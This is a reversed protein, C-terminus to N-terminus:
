RLPAQFEHVGDLSSKLHVLSNHLFLRALVVCGKKRQFQCSGKSKEWSSRYFVHTDQLISIGHLYIFLTEPTLQQQRLLWCFCFALTQVFAKSPLFPDLFDATYGVCESYTAANPLLDVKYSFDFPKNSLLSVLSSYISSYAPNLTWVLKTNNKVKIFSGGIGM